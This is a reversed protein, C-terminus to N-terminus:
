FHKETIEPLYNFSGLAAMVCCILQNKNNAPLMLEWIVDSIGTKTQVSLIKPGPTLMVRIPYNQLRETYYIYYEYNHQCLISNQVNNLM